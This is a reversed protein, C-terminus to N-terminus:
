QRETAEVYATCTGTMGPVDKIVGEHNKQATIRGNPAQELRLM